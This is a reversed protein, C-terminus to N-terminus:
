DEDPQIEKPQLNSDYNMPRDTQKRDPRQIEHQPIFTRSGAIVSAQVLRSLTNRTHQRKLEDTLEFKM